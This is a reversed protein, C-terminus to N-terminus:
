GPSTSTPAVTPMRAPRNVDATAGCKAGCRPQGASMAQLGLCEEAPSGCYASRSAVPPVLQNIMRPQGPSHAVAQSVSRQGPHGIRADLEVKQLTQSAMLVRHHRATIKVRIVLGDEVDSYRVRAPPGLRPGIRRCQSKDLIARRGSSRRESRAHCDADHHRAPSIQVRSGKVGLDPKRPRLTHLWKDSTDVTSRQSASLQTTTTRLQDTTEGSWGSRCAGSTYLSACM